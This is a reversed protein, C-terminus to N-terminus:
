TVRVTSSWGAGLVAGVPAHLALRRCSLPLSIVSSNTCVAAAPWSTRDGSGVASFIASTGRPARSTTSSAAVVAEKEGPKKRLQVAETTHRTEAAVDGVSAVLLACALALRKM